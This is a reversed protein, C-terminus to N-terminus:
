AVCGNARLYDPTPVSAASLLAALLRQPCVDVGNVRIGVHPHPGGILYEAVM